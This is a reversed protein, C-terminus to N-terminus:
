VGQFGRYLCRDSSHRRKLVCIRGAASTRRKHGNKFWRSRQFASREASRTNRNPIAVRRVGIGSLADENAKSYFASDAAVLDPVRGFQRRHEEVASVLLDSDWPKRPFMQRWSIIQGEAEKSRFWKSSSPRSAGHAKGSSRPTRSLFAAGNRRIVLIAASVRAVVRGGQTEPSATIQILLARLLRETAISPKAKRAM